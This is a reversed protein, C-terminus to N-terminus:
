PLQLHAAAISDQGAQLRGCPPPRGNLRVLAVAVALESASVVIYMDAKGATETPAREWLRGSDAFALLDTLLSM